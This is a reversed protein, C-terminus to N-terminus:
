EGSYKALRGLFLERLEREEDRGMFREPLGAPVEQGLKKRKGRGGPNYPLLEWGDLGLDRLIRAIAILNEQTATIGPVLPVRVVLREPARSALACLNALITENDRGTYRRHLRANVLKVDFFIM